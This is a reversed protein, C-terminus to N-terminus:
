GSGVGRRRAGRGIIAIVGALIAAAGGTCIGIRVSATDIIWGLILAGVATTGQSGYTWLTMVSGIRDGPTNLQLWTQSVTQYCMVAVGFLAMLAIYLAFDPAASLLCLSGGLLGCAAIYGAQSPRLRRRALYVGTLVAFCANTSEAAGLGLPGAHLVLQNFSSFFLQFNFTFVGIFINTVLLSRHEPSHWAYTMATVFQRKSRAQRPRPYLRDPRMLLVALFVVAYSAANILYCAGAGLWAYVLAAASPGALRGITQQVSAYSVASSIAATPVLEAVMTQNAPLQFMQALGLALSLAYIITVTIHHAATLLGLALAETGSIVSIALFLRRVDVRDLLPGIFPGFLLFPVTQLSLAIGLSAGNGTIKLILLAQALMQFWTGINSLASGIFFL